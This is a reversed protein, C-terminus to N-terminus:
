QHRCSDLITQQRLTCNIGVNNRFSVFIRCRSFPLNTSKLSGVWTQLRGLVFRRRIDVFSKYQRFSSNNVKIRAASLIPRYENTKVYNHKLTSGESDLVTLAFVHFLREPWELDNMKCDTVPWCPTAYWWIINSAKGRFNRFFYGNVDDFIATTLLGVRMQPGRWPSGRCTDAYAKYESVVTMPRCKQRQMYPDQRWEFKHLPSWFVCRKQVLSCCLANQGNLTM